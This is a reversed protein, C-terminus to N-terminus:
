IQVIHLIEEIKYMINHGSVNLDAGYDTIVHVSQAKGSIDHGEYNMETRILTVTQPLMEVADELQDEM